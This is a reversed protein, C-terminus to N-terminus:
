SKGARYVALAEELDEREECDPAQDASSRDALRRCEQDLRDLMAQADKPRDMELYTEGLYELAGRNHPNLRLAKDYLELARQYDGLKRYAFGSLNYAEDEWPREEIVRAMHDIVGRWDQQKFAQVGAAYADPGGAAPPPEEGGAGMIAGAPGAPLAAAVLAALALCPLSRM